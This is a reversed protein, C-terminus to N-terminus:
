AWMILDIWQHKSIFTRADFYFFQANRRSLFSNIMINVLDIYGTPMCINGLYFIRSGSVTIRIRNPDEKQPQVECVVM